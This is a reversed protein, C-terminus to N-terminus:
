AANRVLISCMVVDSKLVWRWGDQLIKNVFFEPPVLLDNPVHLSGSSPMFSASVHLFLYSLFYVKFLILANIKIHDM